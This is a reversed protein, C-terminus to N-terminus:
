GGGRSEIKGQEELLDMYDPLLEKLEEKYEFGM